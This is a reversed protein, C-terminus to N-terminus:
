NSDARNCCYAASDKRTQDREQVAFLEEVQEPEKRNEAKVAAIQASALHGASRGIM